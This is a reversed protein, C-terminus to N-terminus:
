QNAIWKEIEREAQAFQVELATSVGREQMTIGILRDVASMTLKNHTILLFQTSNSIDAILELFKGLNADDLPADVEDMVCIPGPRHLFLAILIAAAALAKEGGSMLELSKLTKGPPRITLEVGSELPDNPNVMEMKGMGGGFLRPVLESFKESVFGFTELFRRRSLEKLHGITRSLTTQANELDAIHRTMEALRVSEQEHREISTPDVEGERELRRRLSAAEEVYKELIKGLEGVQGPFCEEASPASDATSTLRKDAEYTNSLFDKTWAQAEDSSPLLSEEGWFRRFEQQLQELEGVSGESKATLRELALSVNEREKRALELGREVLELANRAQRKKAERQSLEVTLQELRVGLEERLSSGEDSSSKKQYDVQLEERRLLCEKRNEELREVRGHMGAQEALLEDIRRNEHEVRSQIKAKEVRVKQLDLQALRESELLARARRREEERELNLLQSLRREAQSLEKRQEELVALEQEIGDVKQQQATLSEVLEEQELVLAGHAKKQEELRRALSLGAGEGVTTYWGWDTVVEAKATVIVVRRYGQDHLQRRLWSAEGLTEVYIVSKLLYSVLQAFQDDIDLTDYLLCASPAGHWSDFDFGADAGDDVLPAIVGFRVDAARNPQKCYHDLLDWANESYLYTAREELIAGLAKQFEEKVRIGALLVRGSAGTLEPWHEGEASEAGVEGKVGDVFSQLQAELSGLEGELGALQVKKQSTKDGLERLLTREKSFSQKLFVAREALQPIEESAKTLLEIEQGYKQRFESQENQSSLNEDQFQKLRASCLSEKEMLEQSGRELESLADRLVQIESTIEEGRNALTEFGSEINRERAELRALELELEHEAARLSELEKHVSSREARLSSIEQEVGRDGEQYKKYETQLEELKAFKQGQELKLSEIQSQLTLQRAHILVARGEFATKEVLELRSKLEKRAKARQAQRNLQRVQKEVEQAIDRLRELNDQTRGLQRSATELRSRFGSIGAAEEFLERREIPKKTVIQGITGQQVINLGRPGIGILRCFDAIDKLRCPVRNIYYESEGSRYLRRTLEIESAQYLGPLNALPSVLEKVQGTSKEHSRADLGTDVPAEDAKSSGSDSGESPEDQGGESFFEDQVFSEADTLEQELKELEAVENAAPLWGPEPRFTVSVEAMGLPRQSDSGNFILDEQRLGRLQKAQTEGLVWRLADIINSKGCGNPGVIGILEKDFNLVFRDRFSKFGFIELRSIRM